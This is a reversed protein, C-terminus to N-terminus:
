LFVLLVYFHHIRLEFVILLENFDKNLVFVSPSLAEGVEEVRLLTVLQEV